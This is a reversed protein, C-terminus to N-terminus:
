NIDLSYYVIYTATVSFFSSIGNGSGAGTGSASYSFVYGCLKTDTFVLPFSQAVTM